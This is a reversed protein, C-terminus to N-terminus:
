KGNRSLGLAPALQSWDDIDMYSAWAEYLSRQNQETIWVDTARGPFEHNPNEYGLGMEYNYPYRKAITGKSASSAYNWNEMDDQETLGGPGSYRLYYHLVADKVEQPADKDVFYWRWAETVLAAAPHWVALTRNGHLFANPFVLATGTRLRALKGLRKNRTEHAKRFYDEVIPLHPYLPRYPPLEEGPPLQRVTGHGGPLTVQVRFSRGPTSSGELGGAEGRGKGGPSIGALDASRHSIGHYYDHANEAAFKWNTPMTWKQVGGYVEVGGESGDVSDFFPDLYAFMDGMSDEFSPAEPDWTAFIAGKYNGMQPVEILGWQSKDLLEHYAQKFYPVGVLNGDTAYSWGHYPCSFVPTNGEDYRCVKMGRHRCSNLFVHIKDQRDRCLIVSEEGMRSVFFDGAKPIQSEHGVFLWARAFVKELEEEYVQDSVFLERSILGRDADVMGGFSKPGRVITM